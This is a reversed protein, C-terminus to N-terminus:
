EDLNQLVSFWTAAPARSRALSPRESSRGDRVLRRALIVTGTAGRTAAVLVMLPVLDALEMTCTGKVVHMGHVVIAGLTPADPLVNLRSRLQGGGLWRVVFAVASTCFTAAGSVVAYASATVNAVAARGLIAPVHAVAQSSALDAPPAHM